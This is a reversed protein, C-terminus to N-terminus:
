LKGLFIFHPAEPEDLVKWKKFDALFNENILPRWFFSIKLHNLLRYTVDRDDVLTPPTDWSVSRDYDPILKVMQFIIYSPPM